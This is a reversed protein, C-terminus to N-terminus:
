QLYKGQPPIAVKDFHQALQNLESTLMKGTMPIGHGTIAIRPRLNALTIVSKWAAQWDTTFYSPPGHIEQDQTLVSLLSEQKVTIFADGAILAHDSDRFLSIHGETHGPTHIWRWEPLGPISFDKPLPHVQKELDIAEHPYLPSLLSMLGGGVSPDPPPYNKKGTLYPLEREHAYIPVDWYTNLERLSGIHDFHGHTLIIAVPPTSGFREKALSHISEAFGTVGADVLAWKNSGPEGIFCINAILTRACLLDSAVELSSFFEFGTPIQKQNYQLDM